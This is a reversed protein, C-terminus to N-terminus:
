NLSAIFEKAQNIREVESNIILESSIMEESSVEDFDIISVDLVGEKDFKTSNIITRGMEHPM